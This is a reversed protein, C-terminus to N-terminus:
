MKDLLSGLYTSDIYFASTLFKELVGSKVYSKLFLNLLMQHQEFKFEYWILVCNLIKDLINM